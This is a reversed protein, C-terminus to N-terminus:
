WSRGASPRAAGSAASRRGGRRRSGRRPRSPRRARLRRGPVEVEGVVRLDCTWTLPSRKGARARVAVASSFGSSHRVIASSRARRRRTGPALGVALDRDHHELAASSPRRRAAPPSPRRARARRRRGRAPAASAPRCRRRPSRRRPRVRDGVQAALQRAPRPGHERVDQVEVVQVHLRRRVDARHAHGRHERGAAVRAGVEGAGADHGAEAGRQAPRVVGRAPVRGARGASRGRRRARRDGEPEAGLSTAVAIASATGAAPPTWRANPVAALDSCTPTAGVRAHARRPQRDGARRGIREREVLPELQHAAIGSRSASPPGATGPPRAM